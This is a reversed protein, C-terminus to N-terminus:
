GLEDLIKALRRARTAEQKASTLAVAAEKRRTYSWADFAARAAPDAALAAALDDPVEVIREVADVAITADVEDGIDIGLLAWAAKSLGLCNRGGMRTIRLRASRDGITVLVPPTKGQGLQAVQDDTLIIAAAPGFPVVETRLRLSSM